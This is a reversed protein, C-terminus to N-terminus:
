QRCLGLPKWHSHPAGPSRPDDIAMSYPKSSVHLVLLVTRRTETGADSIAM